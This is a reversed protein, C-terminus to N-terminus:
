HVLLLLNGFKQLLHGALAARRCSPNKRNSPNKRKATAECSVKQWAFEGRVSLIVLRAGEDIAPTKLTAASVENAMAADTRYSVTQWTPMAAVLAFAALGASLLNRHM